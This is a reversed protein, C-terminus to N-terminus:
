GESAGWQRGFAICIVAEDLKRGGPEKGVIFFVKHLRDPKRTCVLLVTLLLELSYLRKWVLLLREKM